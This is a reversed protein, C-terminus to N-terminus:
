QAKGIVQFRKRYDDIEDNVSHSFAFFFGTKEKAFESAWWNCVINRLWCTKIKFKKLEITKKDVNQELNYLSLLLLHIMMLLWKLRSLSFITGSSLSATTAVTAVKTSFSFIMANKRKKSSSSSLPWLVLCTVNSFVFIYEYSCLASLCSIFSVFFQHSVNWYFKFFCVIELIRPVTFFLTPFEIKCPKKSLCSQRLRTSSCNSNM